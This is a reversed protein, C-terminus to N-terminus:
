CTSRLGLGEVYKSKCISDWSKWYIRKGEKDELWIFKVIERDGQRAVSIPLKFVTLTHHAILILIHKALTVKGTISLSDTKFNSTRGVIKNKIYGFLLTKRKAFNLYLVLVGMDKRAKINFISPILEKTCSDSNGNLILTSKQRNILQGLLNSYGNLIRSLRSATQQSEKLFLICDDVFMLHSIRVGGRSIAIGSADPMNSMNQLVLSLPQQAIIFLFPSLPCGQCLRRTPTFTKSMEGNVLVVLGITSICNCIIQIWNNSIGTRILVQNVLDCSVRDYAESMNLKLAVWM